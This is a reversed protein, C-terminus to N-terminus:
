VVATLFAIRRVSVLPRRRHNWKVTRVVYSYASDKLQGLRAILLPLPRGLNRGLRGGSPFPQVTQIDQTSQCRSKAKRSSCRDRAKM